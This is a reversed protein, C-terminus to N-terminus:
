LGRVWRIAEDADDALLYKGGFSEWAEQWDRQERRQKQGPRKVEIAFAQGIVTDNHQEHPQFGHPNTIKRVDLTKRKVGLIDASGKVGFRVHGVTLDRRLQKAVGVNNRWVIADPLSGIGALIDSQIDREKM